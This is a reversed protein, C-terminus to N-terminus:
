YLENQYSFHHTLYWGRRLEVPQDSYTMSLREVRLLPEGTPIKLLLAHEEEARVAKIHEVARLMRVGFASELFGYLTTNCQKLRELTLGKYQHAPLWIEDLIQPIGDFTLVRKIVFVIEGSKIALTNAILTTAHKREISQYHSKPKIQQSEDSFLRLFRYESKAGNHTAVFTGRGQQRIVLNEAALEDIAKRVTGQSVGYRAALETESPMLEGPKWQSSELSKILLVKIQQYLPSFTPNKSLHNRM